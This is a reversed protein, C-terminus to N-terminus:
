ILQGKLQLVSQLSNKYMQIAPMLFGEPGAAARPVVFGCVLGFDSLCAEPFLLM